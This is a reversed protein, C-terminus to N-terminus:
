GNLYTKELLILLEEENQIALLRLLTEIKISSFSNIIPIMNRSFAAQVIKSIGDSDKARLL